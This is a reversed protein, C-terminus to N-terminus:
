NASEETIASISTAHDLQQHIQNQLEKTHEEVHLSVHQNQKAQTVVDNVIQSM